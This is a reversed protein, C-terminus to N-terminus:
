GMLNTISAFKKYIEINITFRYKSFDNWFASYVDEHDFFGNSLYDVILAYCQMIESKQSDYFICEVDRKETSETFLIPCLEIMSFTLYDDRIESRKQALLENYEDQKGDYVHFAGIEDFYGLDLTHLFDWYHEDYVAPYLEDQIFKDIKQCISAPIAIRLKDVECMIEILADEKWIDARSIYKPILNDFKMIQVKSFYPYIQADNKARAKEEASSSANHQVFKESQRMGRTKRKKKM